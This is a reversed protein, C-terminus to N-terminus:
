SKLRPIDRRRVQEPFTLEEPHTTLSKRAQVHLINAQPLSRKFYESVAAMAEPEDSGLAFEYLSRTFGLPGAHVEIDLTVSVFWLHSGEPLTLYRPDVGCELHIRRLRALRNSSSESTQSKGSIQMM